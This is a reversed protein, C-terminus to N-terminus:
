ARLRTLMSLFGSAKEPTGGIGALQRAYAQFAGALPTGGETVLPKGRNLARVALRYDSPFSFAVKGGVATELHDLEVEADKDRDSRSLVM